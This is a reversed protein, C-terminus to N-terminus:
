RTVFEAVARGIDAPSDEQIFHLGRVTVERQNPWRRCFERQEGVLISGPEANVFLKPVPSMRLWAAYAAVIGVVDAPEGDIPIERPWELVPRRSEGPDGFPKRYRAMEEDTLKRMISAPLIREVFVNKQLVMEEGAPSRMGQFVKRANEPWEAWTVPRVIAEMYALGRVRDPHRNAWWFGLASGWDHMVLTVDTLALAEFWADLYRAHDAFRYAGSPAPGSEGMGVLDPALCRAVPEVRPIVNRWLYSSTPNGHLFVVPAGRGTDVYAIHTDLARVRRREYPDAASIGDSM